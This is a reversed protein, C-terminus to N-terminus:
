GRPPSTRRQSFPNIAHIKEGTEMACQRSAQRCERHHSRRETGNSGLKEVCLRTNGDNRGELRFPLHQLRIQRFGLLMMDVAAAEDGALESALVHHQEQAADAHDVRRHVRLDREVTERESGDDEGANGAADVWGQM